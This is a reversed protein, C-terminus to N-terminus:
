LPGGGTGMRLWILGSWAGCGVEQSDMKMNDELGRRPRGYPRWGEPKGVLVKCADRGEGVCAIHRVWRMRRMKIMLIINLSSYLNDLEEVNAKM